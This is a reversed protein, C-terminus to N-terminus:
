AQIASNERWLEIDSGGNSVRFGSMCSAALRWQGEGGTLFGGSCIENVSTSVLRIRARFETAGISYVIVASAERGAAVPRELAFNMVEDLAMSVSVRDRSTFGYRDLTAVIHKRDREWQLGDKVFILRRDPQRVARLPRVDLAAKGMEDLKRNVNM